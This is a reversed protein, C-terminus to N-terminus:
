PHNLYQTHLTNIQTKMTNLAGDNVVVDDAIGRRKDEDARTTALMALAQERSCHDRAMIRTVQQEHEALVLIVRNLYPYDSKDILLPIEIICYPSKCQHIRQQIKERIRPHLLRELWLRDKANNVILERLHHRNLNGDKTLVSKGFHRIIQQLAPQDRNVLERAIDDASIVDIGLQTFYAAVTSKGSAISGTLGICYIGNRM